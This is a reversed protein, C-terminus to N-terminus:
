KLFEQWIEPVCVVDIEHAEVVVGSGWVWYCSYVGRQIFRWSSIRIFGSQVCDTDKMVRSEQLKQEYIVM